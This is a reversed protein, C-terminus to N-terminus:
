HIPNALHETIQLNLREGDRNYVAINQENTFPFGAIMMIRGYFHNLDGTSPTLNGSPHSHVIGIISFDIPLRHFPFSTFGRGHNALPPVLLESIKITTKEKKGRLLLVTERPYLTKASEFIM